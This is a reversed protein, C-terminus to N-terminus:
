CSKVSESELWLPTSCSVGVRAEFRVGRGQRWTQYEEQFEFNVFERDNAAGM